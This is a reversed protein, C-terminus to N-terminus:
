YIIYTTLPDVNGTLLGNKVNFTTGYVKDVYNGDALSTQISIPEANTSVNIIAAGDKGRQVVVEDGNASFFLKEAKGQMAKRFQNAAVVEPHMFEKNGRAGIKNDGWYNDRSSGNPRSFFLPTGYQRAVLFVWGTRILDDDMSASEHENCYTDHSEVWTILKEAAVPHKWALISDFYVNHNNLINRLISGYNSAVLRMYEGYEKEKVNKDQLVEGYIFLSDAPKALKLGKVEKRGTAVDWFDNQPSKADKPDSPLGIHKATDYRFGDAGNALLDNIYQMFYYQFDPNETNVDPLGGMEGTTCQYRDNYDTIPNLGNAHFLNERGGVASDLAASIFNRDVVTHNPLVDVIVKIGYKEAEDTMAKFEAKTGLQYNGIKWDTPQYHYYWKGNGYLDMGGNEGVFCENAPSTQVITYGADAIDKMNDKITNFSWSWAHLIIDNNTKATIGPESSKSCSCLVPAIILLSFLNKLHIMLNYIFIQSLLVCIKM